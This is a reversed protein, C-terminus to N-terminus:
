TKEGHQEPRAECREGGAAAGHRRELQGCHGEADGADRAAEDKTHPSLEAKVALREGGPRV